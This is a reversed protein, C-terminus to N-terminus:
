IGKWQAGRWFSIQAVGIKRLDLPPEANISNMSKESETLILTDPGIWGSRILATISLPLLNLGYPPDLFAIDVQRTARPPATVDCKLVVSHDEFRARRLNKLLVRHAASHHDMFTVHAAGRSMAEIGFAGTGAFGDLVVADQIAHAAAWGAHALVDFIVQRARDSTPRTVQDDPGDLILGRRMGAIVRM